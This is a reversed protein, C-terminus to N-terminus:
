GTTVRVVCSPNTGTTFNLYQQPLLQISIAGHVDVQYSWLTRDCVATTSLKYNAAPTFHVIVGAPYTFECYNSGWIAGWYGGETGCQPQTLLPDLDLINGSNTPDTQVQQQPPLDVCASAQASACFAKMDPPASAYQSAPEVVAASLALPQGLSGNLKVGPKTFTPRGGGVAVPGLVRLKASVDRGVIAANERYAERAQHAARLQGLTVTRPGIRVVTSPPAAVLRQQLSLRELPAVATAGLLAVSLVLASRANM